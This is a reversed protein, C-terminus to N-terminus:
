HIRSYTKGKLVREVQPVNKAKVMETIKEVPISLENLERIKNVQDPSLRGEPGCIIKAAYEDDKWLESILLNPIGARPHLRQYERIAKDREKLSVRDKNLLRHEHLFKMGKFGGPIMNLSVGEKMYRDVIDEEWSMIQEYTHDGIVLESSLMVNKKGIFERWARHFLKKSGSKIENFHESMRQLWNRGTVGVYVHENEFSGDDNFLAIKHSYGFYQDKIKPYGQMIYQLPFSITWSTGEFQAITAHLVIRVEEPNRRFEPFAFYPKVITEVSKGKICSHTIDFDLGNYLQWSGKKYKRNSRLLKDGVGKLAESVGPIDTRYAGKSNMISIGDANMAGIFCELLYSFNWLSVPAWKGIINKLTVPNIYKYNHSKAKILFKNVAEHEIKEYENSFIYEKVMRKKM